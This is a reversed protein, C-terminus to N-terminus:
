VSRRVDLVVFLVLSVRRGIHRASNNTGKVWHLANTAFGKEFFVARILWAFRFELAAAM